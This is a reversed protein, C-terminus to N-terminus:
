QRVKRRSSTGFADKLGRLIYSGVALTTAQKFTM